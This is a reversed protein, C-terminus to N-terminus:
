GKNDDPPLCATSPGPRSIFLQRSYLPKNGLHPRLAQRMFRKAPTLLDPTFECNNDQILLRGMSLIDAGSFVAASAPNHGDKILIFGRLYDFEYNLDSLLGSGDDATNVMDPAYGLETLLRFEFRRLVGEIAPQQMLSLLTSQYLRYIQPHSEYAQMLRCLLENLYMASFLRDGHLIFGTASAEFQTLSKLEGKGSLTVLLPQLPQLLARRNSRSGRIGRAVARVLGFDLTLLDVLLSTDRYDRTHLVYAPQLDIKQNV